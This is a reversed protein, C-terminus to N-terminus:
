ALAPRPSPSLSSLGLVRNRVSRRVMRGRKSEAVVLQGNASPTCNSLQSVAASSWPSEAPAMPAMPISKLVQVGTEGSNVSLPAMKQIDGSSAGAGAEPSVATIACIVIGVSFVSQPASHPACPLIIDPLWSQCIFWMPKPLMAPTPLTSGFGTSGGGGGSRSHELYM